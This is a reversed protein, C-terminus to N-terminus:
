VGCVRMQECMHTESASNRIRAFAYPRISGCASQKVHWRGWGSIRVSSATLSVHIYSVGVGGVCVCINM